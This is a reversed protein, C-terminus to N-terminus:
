PPFGQHIWDGFLAIQEDSLPSLPPPPMGKGNIRGYIEAHNTRVDDYSTLDFRWIMHDRFPELIPVLDKEFSVTAM